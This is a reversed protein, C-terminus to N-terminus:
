LRSTENKLYEFSYFLFHYDCFDLFSVRHLGASYCKILNMILLIIGFVTLFPIVSMCSFDLLIQINFKLIVCKCRILIPFFYFILDFGIDGATEREELGRM